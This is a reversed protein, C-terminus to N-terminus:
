AMRLAESPAVRAARSAPVLNALASAGILVAAAALWSLPDAASVGYLVRASVPAILVALVGTWAVMVRGIQRPVNSLSRISYLNLAQFVNAVLLSSAAMALFYQDDFQHFHQPLWAAIALWAIVAPALIDAIRTLWLLKTESYAKSKDM